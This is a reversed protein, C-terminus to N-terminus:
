IAQQSSGMGTCADKLSAIPLCQVPLAYPKRNRTGSSIMFAFIHTVETWQHKTILERNGYLSSLYGAMNNSVLSYSYENVREVLIKIDVVFQRINDALTELEKVKWALKFLTKM